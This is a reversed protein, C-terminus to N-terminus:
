QVLVVTQDLVWTACAPTSQMPQSSLRLKPRSQLSSASKNSDNATLAADKPTKILDRAVFRRFINSVVGMLYRSCDTIFLM